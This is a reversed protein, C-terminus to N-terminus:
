LLVPFFFVIHSEQGTEPSPLFIKLVVAREPIICFIGGHIKIDSSVVSQLCKSLKKIEVKAEAVQEGATGAALPQPAAPAGTPTPEGAHQQTPEAVHVRELKTYTTTITVLNDKEVQLQLMATREGGGGGDSRAGVAVDRATLLVYDSFSKMREIVNRMGRIDGHPLVVSLSAIHEAYLPETYQYLEEMDQVIRLPVDQLGHMGGDGSDIEFTLTPAGNVKKTLKVQIHQAEHSCCSKLATNLNDLKAFFSIRNNEARSEIRYDRFLAHRSLEACTQIGGNSTASVALAITDPTLHVVCTDSLKNLMAVLGANCIGLIPNATPASRM